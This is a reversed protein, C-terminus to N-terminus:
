RRAYSSVDTAVWQLSSSSYPLIMQNQLSIVGPQTSWTSSEDWNQYTDHTDLLFMSSASWMFTQAQFVFASSINANAPLSALPFRLFNVFVDSSNLGGVTCVIPSGDSLSLSSSRVNADAVATINVLLASTCGFLLLLFSLLAIWGAM